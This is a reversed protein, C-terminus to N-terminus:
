LPTMWMWMLYISKCCLIAMMKDELSRRHSIVSSQDTSPHIQPSLVFILANPNAFSISKAVDLADDVLVSGQDISMGRRLWSQMVFRSDINVTLALEEVHVIVLWPKAVCDYGPDTHEVELM